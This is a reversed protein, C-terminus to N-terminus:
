ARDGLRKGPLLRQGLEVLRLISVAAMLAAAVPTMMYPISM